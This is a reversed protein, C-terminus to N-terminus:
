LIAKHLVKACQFIVKMDSDVKAESVAAEIAAITAANLCFFDPQNRQASHILTIEAINDTILQRVYNCSPTSECRHSNLINLYANHADAISLYKGMRYYVISYSLSSWNPQLRMIM